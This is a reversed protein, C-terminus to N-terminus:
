AVAAPDKREVIAHQQWDGVGCAFEDGLVEAEFEGFFDSAFGIDAGCAKRDFDVFAEALGRNPAVGDLM